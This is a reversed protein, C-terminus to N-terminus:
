EFIDKDINEKDKKSKEEVELKEALMSVTRVTKQINIETRIRNILVTLLWLVFNGIFAGIAIVLVMRWDTPTMTTTMKM